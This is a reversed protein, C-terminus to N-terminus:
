RRLGKIFALFHYFFFDTWVTNYLMLQINAPLARPLIQKGPVNEHSIAGLFRRADSPISLLHICLEKKKGQMLWNQNVAILASASVCMGCRDISISWTSNITFCRGVDMLLWLSLDGCWGPGRRESQFSSSRKAVRAAHEHMNQMSEDPSAGPGGARRGSWCASNFCILLFVFWNQAIQGRIDDWKRRTTKMKPYFGFAFHSPSTFASQFQKSSANARLPHIFMICRPFHRHM